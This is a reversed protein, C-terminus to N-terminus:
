APVAFALASEGHYNTGDWYFTIKDVSGAATTLTPATGAPWKVTAPWTVTRSGTADQILKLTFNGVYKPATFTFTCNDTLTSKQSLGNNWDVTDAAASNGNDYETNSAVLGYKTSTGADSITANINNVIVVGSTSSGAINLTGDFTNGIILSYNGTGNEFKINTGAGDFTNGSIISDHGSTDSYICGNSGDAAFYNDSIRMESGRNRICYESGASLWQNGTLTHGSGALAIGASFLKNNTFNCYSDSFIVALNHASANAFWCDEVNVYGSQVKLSNDGVGADFWIDKIRCFNGTKIGDDPFATIKFASVEGSAGVTITYADACTITTAQWGAGVLRTNSSLIINATMTFTGERMIITGGGAVGAATNATIVEAWTSCVALFPEQGGGGAEELSILGGSNDYTLVYNDQGAGVTQDADFTFNGLLVNGTGNPEIDINGGLVSVVKQGNVDLSGGLQPTLDAVVNQLASDALDLSANVSVDLKTEDISGGVISAAISPVAGTYTFDIESSDTMITGVADQARKDTFYLNTVGETLEDTTQSGLSASQKLSASSDYSGDLTWTDGVALTVVAIQRLTTNNNYSITITVPAADRNQIAISKVVRQTSAGPAAVLTVPTTGNLAGDNSGETFTTATSDAYTAVFDPNTTNAAGSMVAEISKNTADLVLTKM